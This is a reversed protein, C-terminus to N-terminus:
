LESKHEPCFSSVAAGVLYGSNEVGIQLGKEAETAVAAPTNGADIATCSTKGFTILQDDPIKKLAPVKARTTALFALETTTRSSKAPSSAKATATATAAPKSTATDIDACATLSAALTLLVATALHRRM